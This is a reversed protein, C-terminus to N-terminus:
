KVRMLKTLLMRSVFTDQGASTSRLCSIDIRKIPAFLNPVDIPIAAPLITEGRQM